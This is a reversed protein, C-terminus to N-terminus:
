DFTLHTWLKDFNSHIDYNLILISWHMTLGRHALHSVFMTCVRAGQVPPYSWLYFQMQSEELDLILGLFQTHWWPFLCLLCNASWSADALICRCRKNAGAADNLGNALHLILDPSPNWWWPSLTQLPRQQRRNAPRSASVRSPCALSCRTCSLNGSANRCLLSCCTGALVLKWGCCIEVQLSWFVYMEAQALMFRCKWGWIVTLQSVEWPWLDSCSIPKTMLCPSSLMGHQMYVSPVSEELNFIPAQFPNPWWLPSAM